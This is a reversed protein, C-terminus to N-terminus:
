NCISDKYFLQYVRLLLTGPNLYLVVNEHTTEEVKDYMLYLSYGQINNNTITTTYQRNIIIM